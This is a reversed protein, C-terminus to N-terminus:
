LVKIGNGKVSNDADFIEYLNIVFSKYNLYHYRAREMQLSLTKKSLRFQVYSVIVSVLLGSFFGAFYDVIEVM